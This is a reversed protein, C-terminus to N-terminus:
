GFEMPRVPTRDRAALADVEDDGLAVERGIEVLVSGLEVRGPPLVAEAIISRLEAEASRGHAAARLRLARHVEDPINRVTLNVM